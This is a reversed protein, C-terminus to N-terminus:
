KGAKNKAWDLTTKGLQLPANAVWPAVNKLFSGIGNGRQVSANHEANQRDAVANAQTLADQMEAKSVDNSHSLAGQYDFNNLNQPNYTGALSALAPNIANGQPTKGGLLQQIAAMEKYQDANAVTGPNIMANPDSQQLGPALDIKTAQSMASGNGEFPSGVWHPTNANQMSSSLANWQDQTVGLAQAANPDFQGTTVMNKVAAQSTKADSLDKATLDKITQNLKTLTGNQGTFADLAKQSTTQAENQGQNIAGTVNQNQSNLFQNLTNYPDAAAKVQGMAEPSGGLLLTDLQNIGQSAQPGEVQQTLVNLGGPTSALSGEQQAQAVRGQQTGMDAWNQPGTYQDNLQSQFQSLTNQNGAAATPNAAVENILQDNGKTYGQNVANITDNASKEVGSKTTNYTDNLNSSVSNGLQASGAKNADLYSGVDTYGQNAQPTVNQQVPSVPAAGGGQGQGSSAGAGGSGGTTPQQGQQTQSKEEDQNALTAM